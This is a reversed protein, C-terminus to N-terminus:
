LARYQIKKKPTGTSNVREVAEKTSQHILNLEAPSLQLSKPTGIMTQVFGNGAEITIMDIGFLLQNLIQPNIKNKLILRLEKEIAEGHSAILNRDDKVANAALFAIRKKSDPTFEALQDLMRKKDSLSLALKGFAVFDDGSEIMEPFYQKVVGKFASLKRLFDKTVSKESARARRIADKINGKSLALAEAGLGAFDASMGGNAANELSAVKRDAMLLSPSYVDVLSKYIQLREIAELTLIRELERAKTPNLASFNEVLAKKVAVPDEFKRLVEFVDLHPIVAGHETTIILDTGRLDSVIQDRYNQEFRLVDRLVEQVEKSSFIRLKNPAPLFRSVRASISAEDASFGIGGHFWEGPKEEAAILQNEILYDSFIRNAAEFAKNKEEQFTEIAKERNRFEAYVGQLSKYDSSRISQEHLKWKNVLQDGLTTLVQKYKNSTSTVFNKNQMITNLRRLNSLEIMFFLNGDEPKSHEAFSVFMSREASTTVDENLYNQILWEESNIAMAPINSGGLKVSCSNTSEANAPLRSCLPEVPPKQTFWFLSFVLAIVAM